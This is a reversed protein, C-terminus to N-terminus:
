ELEKTSAKKSAEEEFAYAQMIMQESQEIVEAVCKPVSVEVGRKIQFTYGNIAVFYDEKNHRDLPLKIKVKPQDAFYNKKAM